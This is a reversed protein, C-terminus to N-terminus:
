FGSEIVLRKQKPGPHAALRLNTAALFTGELQHSAPEYTVQPHFEPGPPLGCLKIRRTGCCGGGHRRDCDSAALGAPELSPVGQSEWIQRRVRTRYLWQTHRGM